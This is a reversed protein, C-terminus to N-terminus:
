NYNSEIKSLGTYKYFVVQKPSSKHMNLGFYITNDIVSAGELHASPLTKYDIGGFHMTYKYNGNSADFVSIFSHNYYNQSASNSITRAYYINRHDGIKAYSISQDVTKVDGNDINAYYTPIIRIKKPTATLSSITAFVIGYKCYYRNADKDYAIGSLSTKINIPETDVIIKKNNEIRFSHIKKRNTVYFKNDVDSYTIDNAHGMIVTKNKDVITCTSLDVLTIITPDTDSKYGAYVAYDKNNSRYFYVGQMVRIDNSANVNIACVKTPSIEYINTLNPLKLSVNCTAKKNGDKTTVTITATGNKLVQVVGNKDVTAINSDSSEWTVEKNTADSPEITANLTVKEGQGISLSTKNLSVSQVPITSPTTNVQVNCTAKKNGDKTTVTITATGNKLVQVVGNKDVTAINSDSSEWIVEKNTADSPEITANLTVKEGPKINLSTKDLIVSQVPIISPMTNVQVNCTAKKNGDKTTVTITATGNKVAQVVGNKDVKVIGTNSSEWTVEKNTADSPEVTVFIRVIDGVVMNLNKDSLYINEVLIEKKSNTKDFHFSLFILLFIVCCFFLCVILSKRYNNHSQNNVNNDEMM